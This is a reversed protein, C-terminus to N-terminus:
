LFSIVVGKSFWDLPQRYFIVRLLQQLFGNFAGPCLRQSKLSTM